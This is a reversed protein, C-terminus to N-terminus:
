RKRLSALTSALGGNFGNVTKFLDIVNEFNQKLFENFVKAKEILEYSEMCSITAVLPKLGNNQCLRYLTVYQKRMDSLTTGKKLDSTGISIIVCKKKHFKAKIIQKVSAIATAILLEPSLLYPNLAIDATLVSINM